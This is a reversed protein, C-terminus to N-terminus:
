RVKRINYPIQVNIQKQQQKGNMFNNKSSYKETQEFQKFGYFPYFTVCPFRYRSELYRNLWDNNASSSSLSFFFIVTLIIFNLFIAQDNVLM